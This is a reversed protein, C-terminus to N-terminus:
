TVQPEWNRIGTELVKRARQEIPRLGYRSSNRIVRSLIEEAEEDRGQRSLFQGYDFICGEITHRCAILSFLDSRDICNLEEFHGMMKRFHEEAEKVEGLSEHLLAEALEMQSAQWSTMSGPARKKAEDLYEEAAQPDGSAASLMSMWAFMRMGPPIEQEVWRLYGEDSFVPAVVDRVGQEIVYALAERAEAYRGQAEYLTAEDWLPYGTWPLQIMDALEHLENLVQLAEDFRALFMSLCMAKYRLGDFRSIVDGNETALRIM